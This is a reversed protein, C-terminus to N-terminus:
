RLVQAERRAAPASAVDCEVDVDVDYGLLAASTECGRAEDAFLPYLSRHVCRGGVFSDTVVPVAPEDAAGRVPLKRVVVIDALKGVAISGVEGDIGAAQAPNATVLAFAEALDLGVTKHLIFVAGIMAAPYYDSCLMDIAGAQVAERASLNGSHSHGMMVNPAGALTHMGRERASRAVGMTIPFESIAADFSEMRDLKEISDDDHSAVSIGRSQALRALETMQALSLKDSQQQTQVIRAVEEDSIDRYGKLTDGFIELDSYQGQGPTHDMFSIMDVAGSAILEKIREYHGVADVEIRLHLRHRILHEREEADRMAAVEDILRVVNGFNRIPKHDFITEGYVSLSHYITTIGHAVLEREAQYLSTRLDMVVSPRPSAVTEIFDSHIDIMGPAVYAGRADIVVPLTPTAADAASHAAPAADSVRDAALGAVADARHGGHAHGGSDHGDIISQAYDVLGRSNTELASNGLAQEGDAPRYGASPRIAAIRGNRVFVDHEPLVADECIVTGGSIILTTDNM